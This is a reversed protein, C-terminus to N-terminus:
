LPKGSSTDTLQAERSLFLILHFLFLLPLSLYQSRAAATVLVWWPLPQFRSLGTGGRTRSTLPRGDLSLCSQSRRSARSSVGSGQSPWSRSAVETGQSGRCLWNVTADEGRREEERGNGDDCRKSQRLYDQRRGEKILVRTAVHLGGSYGM